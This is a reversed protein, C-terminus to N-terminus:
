ASKRAKMHTVVVVALLVLGLVLIQFPRSYGRLILIDNIVAVIISGVVTRAISGSGGALATGGVLVAALADYTLSGQLENGAGQNVASLLVGAVGALLSAVVFVVMTTRAVPLGAARAADRNEGILYLERGFQTARLVWQLLAALVLMVFVTFPVGLYQQRLPGFSTGSPALIFQTTILLCLGTLAGQMAITTIITNSELAGIVLGQVLGIAVTVAIVAAIAPVWGADLVSIMVIGTLAVTPALALSFVNGSIVVLTMGLAVIGVTGVSALIAQVNSVTAFGDTSLMLAVIVAIAALALVRTVDVRLGIPRIIADTM